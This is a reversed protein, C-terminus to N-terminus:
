GNPKNGDEVLKDALHAAADPFEEPIMALLGDSDLNAFEAIDDIVDLAPLARAAAELQSLSELLQQESSEGSATEKEFRKQLAPPLARLREEISKSEASIDLPRNNEEASPLNEM